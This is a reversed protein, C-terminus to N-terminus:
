IKQIPWPKHRIPGQKKNYKGVIVSNTTRSNELGGRAAMPSWCRRRARHAPDTVALYIMMIMMVMMMMMMMMMMKRIM